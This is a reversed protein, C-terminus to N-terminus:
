GKKVAEIGAEVRSGYRYGVYGGLGAAVLAIVVVIQWDFMM